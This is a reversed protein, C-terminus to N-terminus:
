TCDMVCFEREEGGGERKECNGTVFKLRGASFIM